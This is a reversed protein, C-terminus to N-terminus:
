AADAAMRDHPARRELCWDSDVRSFGLREYIGIAVDAPDACMVLREARWCTFGWEAVAHVLAGCLGRRRWAPHTGVHQFRAIAGPEAATRILGCDAALVGDCWVGFWSALGRAQMAAYRRLMARRFDAHRVPEFGDTDVTQQALLQDIEAAIDFPRFRVAGRPARAAKLGGAQLELVATDFREFGAGQWAMLEEGAYPADVGIAVHQSAPAHAAVEADFRALWHALDEDRPARPLLLFNGWYYGPNSPTRVVLCDDRETVQGDFRHLIFATRWGLRLDDLKM